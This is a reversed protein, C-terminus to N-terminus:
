ALATSRPWSSTSAAGCHRKPRTTTPASWAAQRDPSSSCDQNRRLVAADMSNGVEFIAVLQGPRADAALEWAAAIPEPVIEPVPLGAEHAAARLVALERGERAAPYTLVLRDPFAPERGRAAARAVAALIAAFVGTLSFATGGVTVTDGEALARKPALVARGPESAAREVAPLGALPPQGDPCFVTAPLTRGEFDVIKTKGRERVVAAVSATGIDVALAWGDM